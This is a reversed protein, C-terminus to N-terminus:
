SERVTGEGATAVTPTPQEDLAAEPPGGTILAPDINVELERLIDDTPYRDFKYDDIVFRRKRGGEDYTVKAIGKDRWKRKNLSVVQDFNFSQGWSSNIGTDTSEIWRGRALWSGSLLWLGIVGAGAAMVFQMLIDGQSKPEGPYTTPWNNQRAIEHWRDRFAIPDQGLMENELEHYALARKRQNPYGIFGDYLCYLAFGVAVVGM